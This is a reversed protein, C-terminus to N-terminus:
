NCGCCMNLYNAQYLLNQLGAIFKQKWCFLDKSKREYVYSILKGIRWYKEDEERSGYMRFHNGKNIKMVMERFRGKQIIEHPIIATAKIDYDILKQIINSATKTKLKFFGQSLSVYHIMLLTTEYESCLAVLDVADKETSIREKREKFLRKVIINNNIILKM